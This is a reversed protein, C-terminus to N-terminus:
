FYDLNVKEQLILLIDLIVIKQQEIELIDFLVRPTQFDWWFTHCVSRFQHRTPFSFIGGSYDIHSGTTWAVLVISFSVTFWDTFLRTSCMTMTGLRIYATTFRSKTPIFALINSTWTLILSISYSYLM